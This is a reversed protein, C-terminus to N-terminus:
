FDVEKGDFAYLFLKRTDESDPVRPNMFTCTSNMARTVLDDLRKEFDDRSIGL